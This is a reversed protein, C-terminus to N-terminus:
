QSKPQQSASPPSRFGGPMGERIPGGESYLQTLTGALRQDAITKQENSLKAYFAKAAVTIDEMATLRDRAIDVTQDVEQLVTQNQPPAVPHTNIDAMLAKVRDEYAQWV